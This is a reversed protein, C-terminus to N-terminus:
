SQANELSEKNVVCALQPCCFVRPPATVSGQLCGPLLTDTSFDSLVSLFCSRDVRLVLWSGKGPCLGVSLLFSWFSIGFQAPFHHCTYLFFLVRIFTPSWWLLCSESHVFYKVKLFLFWLLLGLSRFSSYTSWGLGEGQIYLFVLKVYFHAILFFPPLASYWTRM